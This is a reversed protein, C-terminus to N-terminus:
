GGRAGVRHSADKAAHAAVHGPDKLRSFDAIERLRRVVDRLARATEKGADDELARDDALVDM